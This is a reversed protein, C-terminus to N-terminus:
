PLVLTSIIVLLQSYGSTTSKLLRLVCYWQPNEAKWVTHM